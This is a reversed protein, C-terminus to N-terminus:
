YSNLKELVYSKLQDLAVRDQSMSDRHRVTAKKDELSDFDVTICLPTGVEDQRRYRKGISGSEDYDVRHESTLDEYVKRSAEQLEPKKSLPLICAKIPALSPHLKLVVRTDKNGNELESVEEEYASCLLALCLRDCGVATEIVYPTFKEKSM